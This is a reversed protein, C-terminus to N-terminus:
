VGRDLLLHSAHILADREPGPPFAQARGAAETSYAYARRRVEDLVGSTRVMQLVEEESIADFSGSSVVEALRDRTRGDTRRLLLIIPLTVRGELLDAMVPKGLDSRVATFDLLDDVLQFSIGVSRGFDLLGETLHLTAPQFLAPLACAAAFLEATKRQTIDMYTNEDVDLRGRVRDALIEGETMRLTASTLVRMVEVDGLELCLDMTRTYLWDGVLVTTQNGWTNNATPHGRRLDSGDIIDDHILTATHIMELVAAYRVDREGKYGLMRSVLLVLAPRLRKGGSGLVYTAVDRVMPQAAKFERDFFKEVEDLRDLVPGFVQRIQRAQKLSSVTAKM